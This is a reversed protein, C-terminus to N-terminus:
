AFDFTVIELLLQQFDTELLSCKELPLFITKYCLKSINIVPIVRCVYMDLKHAFVTYILLHIVFLVRFNFVISCLNVRSELNIMQEENWNSTSLSVTMLATWDEWSKCKSRMSLRSSSIVVLILM